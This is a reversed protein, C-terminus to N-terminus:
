NMLDRVVFATHVAVFAITVLALLVLIATLGCTGWVGYTRVALRRLGSTLMRDFVENPPSFAQGGRSLVVEKLRSEYPGRECLWQTQPRETTEVAHSLDHLPFLLVTAFEMRSSVQYDKESLNVIRLNVPGKYEPDIHGSNFGLVGEQAVRNPPFLMGGVTPPLELEEESVLTVIQGPRLLFPGTTLNHERPSGDDGAYLVLSAHLDASAREFRAGPPLINRLHQGALM